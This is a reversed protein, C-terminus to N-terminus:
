YHIFLLPILSTKGFMIDEKEQSLNSDIRFHHVSFMGYSVFWNRVSVSQM